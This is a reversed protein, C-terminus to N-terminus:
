VSESTQIEGNDDTYYLYNPSLEPGGGQVSVDVYAYDTVNIGEGNETIELTGTSPNPVNVNVAAYDKVDINNGNATIDKTGTSPNPVDVKVKAYEAIDYTGNAVAEFLDKTTAGPVQINVGRYAEIDYEGNEKITDIRPKQKQQINAVFPIQGPLFSNAM